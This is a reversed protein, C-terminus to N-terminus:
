WRLRNLGRMVNISENFRRVFPQGDVWGGVSRVTEGIIIMEVVVVVVVTIVICECGQAGCNSHPQTHFILSFSICAM